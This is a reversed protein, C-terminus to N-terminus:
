SLWLPHSGQLRPSGKSPTSSSVELRLNRSGLEPNLEEGREHSAPVVAANGGGLKQAEM